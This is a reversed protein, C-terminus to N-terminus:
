NDQILGQGVLKEWIENCMEKPVYKLSCVANIAVEKDYRESQYLLSAMIELYGCEYRQNGIFEILEKFKNEKEKSKYYILRIEPKLEEKEYIEKTLRPSYPGRIHWNYSYDLDLDFFKMLYVIKQICMRNSFNHHDYEGIRKLLGWLIEPKKLTMSYFYKYLHVLLVKPLM